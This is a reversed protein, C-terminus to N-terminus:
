LLKLHTRLKASLRRKRDEKEREYKAFLPAPARLSPILDSCLTKEVRDRHKTMYLNRPGAQATALQLILGGASPVKWLKM